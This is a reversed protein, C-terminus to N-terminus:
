IGTDQSRFNTVPCNGFLLDTQTMDPYYAGFMRLPDRQTETAKIGHVQNKRKSQRM